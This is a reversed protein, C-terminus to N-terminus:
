AVQDFLRLRSSILSCEVQYAVDARVHNEEVVAFELQLESPV